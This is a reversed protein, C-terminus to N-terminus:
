EIAIKDKIKEYTGEKIGPVNMIDEISTFPGNEERYAIIALAKSEGVGTLTSLQSVDATNLNIRQGAQTTETGDATNDAATGTQATGEQVVGDQATEDQTLPITQSDVEEQTPVYIQQGDYLSRARNLYSAAAGPLYGGAKEIAQFVRSDSSLEYVGPNVVAGCVDVYITQSVPQQIASSQDSETIEAKKKSIGESETSDPSTESALDTGALSAKGSETDKLEKQEVDATEGSEEQELEKELFESEENQCGTLGALTLFMIVSFILQVSRINLKKRMTHHDSREAYAATLTGKSM